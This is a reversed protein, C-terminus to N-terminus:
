TLSVPAPIFVLLCFDIKSRKVCSSFSIFFCNPPSPRPSDIALSFVLNIPPFIVSLDLFPSPAVNKTVM